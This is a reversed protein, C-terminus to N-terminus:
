TTTDTAKGNTVDKVARKVFKATAVDLIDMITPGSWGCLIVVIWMKWDDLSYGFSVLRALVGVVGSVLAAIMAKLFRYKDHDYLYRLLGVASSVSFAALLWNTPISEIPKDDM